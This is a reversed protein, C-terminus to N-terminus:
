SHQDFFLFVFVCVFLVFWNALNAGASSSDVENVKEEPPDM